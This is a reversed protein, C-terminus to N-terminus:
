GAKVNCGLPLPCQRSASLVNRPLSSQVMSSGAVSGCNGWNRSKASCPLQGQFCFPFFQGVVLPLVLPLGASVGPLVVGLTRLEVGSVLTPVVVILCLARSLLNLPVILVLVLLSAVGLGTLPRTPLLLITLSAGHVCQGLVVICSGWNLGITTELTAFKTVIGVVAGPTVWLCGLLVAVLPIVLVCRSTSRCLVLTRLVLTSSSDVM